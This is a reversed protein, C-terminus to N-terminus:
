NLQEGAKKNTTTHSLNAFFWNQGGAGGTLKNANAASNDHVTVGWVLKNSGNLGGGTKIHKIRTAYPNGSQWEALIAELALDHALSSADYDTSGAILIDGGSHGTVTDKGKGGILLSRGAGGTITNPGAGGILINGLADGRLVDGAQGGRVNRIGKIGGGVGTATGATLDVSVPTTYAAYDLWNTGGGGDIKGSIAKGAGFVFVDEGSGGILNEVASFSFGGVTGADNNTISWVNTSDPGILTDTAASSGVLAQINAFGGTRTATDSALDVTAAVGGDGSYDLTNTGGGGDIKGSVSGDPAFQFTDNGTGGTLNAVGWFAVAGLTGSDPGTIDWTNTTNPGVLTDTGSGGIILKGTTGDVNVTNSGPGTSLGTYYYLSSTDHVDFTNGGSGGFVDVVTVGGTASASPSWYIPASAGLGTLEGDYLNTTRGTKDSSDDVTLYSYGSSSSNYVDVYGNIAATSGLGVDVSLFGAGGVVLAGATSYIDVTNSGSGTSLYTDYYLNSTNHVNFLDGGSGGYVALYTVGGTSSSSPSWYLPAPSGLGTLEGDYLNTTRGTKDSSDDVTLYSYGSSSSNYVEVYGNINALTGGLYYGNSGIYVEQASSSGDLYLPGSTAEVNVYNFTSNGRSGSFLKLSPAPAFQAITFTNGGSGGFVTLSTIEGLEYNITGPALGTISGFATNFPASFTAITAHRGLTDASDDVTVAYTSYDNEINLTGLIGQVSGSKGVEVTSTDARFEISGTWVTLGAPVDEVQITDHGGGSNLVIADLFDYPGDYQVQGNVIAEIFRPNGPDLRLDITDNTVGQDDGFVYLTVPITVLSALNPVTFAGRGYTGALLTGGGASDYHLDSTITHPLDTGYRIWHTNPGLGPDLTRFVGGQAGVLVTENGPVGSPNVVEITWIDGTFQSLNGTVDSWSAGGTTTRYVRSGDTVYATLWDTPDMTIHRVGHGPYSILRSFSGGAGARLYARLYLAGNIGVYTVEPNEVGGLMGGYAIATVTMDGTFSFDGSSLNFITQGGDMSEYLQGYHQTGDPDVSLQTGIMMHSKQDSLNNLVYLGCTSGGALLGSFPVGPSSPSALSVASDQQLNNSSDFVRRRIYEVNCGATMEYRVANIGSNDIAVVGGDGSPIANWIGGNPASQEEAGNDQSGGFVIHNLSDYAVTSLETNQLNGDVPVWHQSAYGSNVLRYVGGDDCELVDKNANIVMIRSDAHTRTGNAGSGWASSWQSGFPVTYDGREIPGGGYGGIWVVQSYYQDATIALHGPDGHIYGIGSDTRFNRDMATWSSGLNTSYYVLVNTDGAPPSYPDEPMAFVTNGRYDDHVALRIDFSSTFDSLGTTLASWDRGADDSRFVGVGAVAAYFRWANGPDAVVDTLSGSPLGTGAGSLSTFSNGADTSRWIGANTSSVLIVQQGTGSDLISTPVVNRINVGTLSGLPTWTNGADTTKLLGILPGGPGGSSFDGAGGYLTRQSADLPSFALSGISLSGLFDSQPVWYPSPDLADTTHWIGGNVSGIYLNNANTPDAAIASIAGSQTFSSDNIPAPGQAIWTPLATISVSLLRRDELCELFLRRRAHHTPARLSKM